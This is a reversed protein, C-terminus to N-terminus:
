GFIFLFIDKELKKKIRYKRNNLVQINTSLIAAIIQKSLGSHTLMCYVGDESTIKYKNKLENIPKSFTQKVANSIRERQSKRIKKQSIEVEQALKQIERFCETKNFIDVHATILEKIKQNGHDPAKGMGDTQENNIPTQAQISILKEQLAALRKKRFRDLLLFFLLLLSIAICFAIIIYTKENDSNTKEYLNSLDDPRQTRLKHSKIDILTALEENSFAAITTTERKMDRYLGGPYFFALAKEENNYLRYYNAGAPVLSDKTQTAHTSDETQALLLPSSVKDASYSCRCFLCIFLIIIITHYIKSNKM